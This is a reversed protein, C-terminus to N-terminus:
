YKSIEEFFKDRLLENYMYGKYANILETDTISTENIMHDKIIEQEEKFDNNEVFYNYATDMIYSSYYYNQIVISIKEKDAFIKNAFDTRNIYEVQNAILYNEFKLNAKHNEYLDLIRLAIINFNINELDYNLETYKDFMLDIEESIVDKEINVDIENLTHAIIKAKERNSANNYNTITILKFVSVSLFAIISCILLINFINKKIFQM